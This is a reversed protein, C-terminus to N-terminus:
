IYIPVRGHTFLYTKAKYKTASDEMTLNEMTQIVSQMYSRRFDKPVSKIVSKSAHKDIPVPYKNPSGMVHFNLANLLTDAVEKPDVTLPEMVIVETVGRPSHVRLCLITKM